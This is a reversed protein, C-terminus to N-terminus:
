LKPFDGISIENRYIHRYNSLYIEKHIIERSDISM